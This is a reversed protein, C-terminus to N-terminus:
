RNAQAYLLNLVSTYLHHPKLLLTVYHLRPKSTVDYHNRVSLQETSPLTSQNLPSGQNINKHIQSKTRQITRANINITLYRSHFRHSLSRRASSVVTFLGFSRPTDSGPLRLLLRYIGGQLKGRELPIPHPM